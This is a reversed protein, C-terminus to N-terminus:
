PATLTITATYDSLVPPRGLRDLDATSPELADFHLSIGAADASRSGDDCLNCLIITEATGTAPLVTVELRIMGEWYCDVEPPCRQDTIGTLTLTSGSQSDATSIGGQLMLTTSHPEAGAPLTVLALALLALALLAPPLRM